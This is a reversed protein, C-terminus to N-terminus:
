DYKKGWGGTHFSVEPESVVGAEDMAAKLETLGLFERLTDFSDAQHYVIVTSPQDLSRNVAHGIIGHTRQLDGGADYRELWHDFDAVRHSIVFSPHEGEWVVSERVPTMWTMEPASLVGARQMADAIDDSSAFEKAAAVDSVALYVSLQNPDDEGRNIHHGLIGSARRRQEHDDFVAKWTDFDAVTHSILVAAPPLANSAM